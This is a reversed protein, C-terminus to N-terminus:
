FVIVFGVQGAKPRERKKMVPACVTKVSGNADHVSDAGGLRQALFLHNFSVCIEIV